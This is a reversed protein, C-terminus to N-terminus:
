IKFINCINTMSHSERALIGQYKFVNRIGRILSYHPLLHSKLANLMDIAMRSDSEIVLNCLGKGWAICIGHYIGWLEAELIGCREIKHSFGFLFNGESDRAVSGCRARAGCETLSGDCCISIFGSPPSKSFLKFERFGELIM